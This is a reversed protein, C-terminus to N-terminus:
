KWQCDTQGPDVMPANKITEIMDVATKKQEYDPKDREKRPNYDLYLKLSKLIINEEYANCSIVIGRFELPRGKDDAKIIRKVEM